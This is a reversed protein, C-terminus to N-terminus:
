RNQELRRNIKELTRAESGTRRSFRSLRGLPVTVSVVAVGKGPDKLVEATM